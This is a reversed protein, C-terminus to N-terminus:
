LFPGTVLRKGAEAAVVCADHLSAGTGGSATPVRMGLAGMEALQKWLRPDFGSSAAARVRAASSEAAFLQAFVDRLLKQEESLELNVVDFPVTDELSIGSFSGTM